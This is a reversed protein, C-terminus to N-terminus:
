GWWEMGDEIRWLLFVNLFHLYESFGRKGKEDIDGLAMSSLARRGCWSGCGCAGFSVIGSEGCRRVARARTSDKLRMSTGAMMAGRM